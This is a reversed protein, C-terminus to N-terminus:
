CHLLRVGRPRRVRPRAPAPLAPPQVPRPLPPPLRVLQPHVHLVVPRACARTRHSHVLERVLAHLVTHLVSHSM